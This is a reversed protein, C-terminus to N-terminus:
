DNGGDGQSSHTFLFIACIYDTNQRTSVIVFIDIIALLEMTKNKILDVADDILYDLTTKL